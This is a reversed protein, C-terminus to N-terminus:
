RNTTWFPARTVGPRSGFPRANMLKVEDEDCGPRRSTVSMISQPWYQRPAPWSQPALDIVTEM